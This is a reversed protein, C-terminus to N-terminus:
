FRRARLNSGQPSCPRTRCFAFRKPRELSALIPRLGSSRRLRDSGIRDPAGNERPHIEIVHNVGLEPCMTLVKDLVFPDPVPEIRDQEKDFFGLDYELFSVQWVQDDIKRIGVLILLFECGIREPTCAGSGSTPIRRQREPM